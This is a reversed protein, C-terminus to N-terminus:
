AAEDEKYLQGNKIKSVFSQVIGHRQAISKQMEGAALRARIDAVQEPTLKRAAAQKARNEASSRRRCERCSRGRGVRVGSHVLDDDSAIYHGNKCEVGVVLGADRRPPVRQGPFVPLSELYDRAEPTMHTRIATRSRRGHGSPPLEVLMLDQVYQWFEARSDFRGLLLETEITDFDPLDDEEDFWSPWVEGPHVGLVEIAMADARRLDLRRVFPIKPARAMTDEYRKILVECVSGDVERSEVVRRVGGNAEVYEEVRSAPFMVETM